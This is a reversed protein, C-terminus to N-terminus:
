EHRLATLVPTRLTRRMAPLGTLLGALLLIAMLVAIEVAPLGGGMALHPSVSILAALVGALLGVVLLAANERFVLGALRSKSWGTARLLALEARREWVNRLMVVGLGVVGLLLGLAGLVQFLSLYANQVALFGAVVEATPKVEAGYASLGATLLERTGLPDDPPAEILVMGAGEQHPFLGRFDREAIVLESQFISDKFTGVVRGTREVGSEDAVPLTGGLSVDLQWMATNEEVFVPIPEDAGREKVLLLWPNEKEEPTSALTGSFRFGGRYILSAPVGLVRPRTAKYLNLCSADDGARLRLPFYKNAGLKDALRARDAETATLGLKQRRAEWGDLIEARGQASTLDLHVPLDTTAVLQFGGSGGTRGRFEDDPSRRFSEVAILLFAASALLGATLLSRGPNRSANRVALRSLAWPGPRIAGRRDRRLYLWLGLMALSLLVIGSTFFAGARPEGPPLYPGAALLGAALATGGAFAWGPWSPTKRGVVRVGEQGGKLLAVASQKRLGRVAMFVIGVCLVVSVSLGVLLSLPSVHLSLFSSAAPDPWLRKLLSLMADAYAVAAGIGVLAAPVAIALGEALLMTRVRSVSWGTALLLGLERSRQALRLKQLLGVLMLSSAILFFSFGYFLAGFDVSGGRSAKLREAVPDFAFGSKEPELRARVAARFAAEFAKPDTGAPVAVRVSTTRGFRSGFLREGTGRSVYAKPTAKHDKWFDDDPRAIWSKEYPFPPSWESLSLRDTIGPFAPTLGRDDAAGALPIRGRVKLRVASSQLLVETEPRYFGLNVSVGPTADFAKGPLDVLLIENDLLREPFFPGLPAPLDTDLAAVIFYPVEGLRAASGVAAAVEVAPPAAFAGPTMRNILYVTTPASRVNLDKAARLVADELAFELLLRSSEVSLYRNEGRGLTQTKLGWDEIRLGADLAAQLSDREGGYALVADVAESSEGKNRLEAQLDGLQMWLNLPEGTSPTPAFRSGPQDANLVTAVELPVTRTTEDSGRRGFASARPIDSQKELNISITEGVSVGLAAALAASLTAEGPRLSVTPLLPSGQRVGYVSVRGVRIDGDATARTVSGRLVIAPETDAPLGETAKQSFFRPSVLLHKLGALQREGRDRLSGRQSDGVLLAGTVVATGAVIGLALALNSRAHFLLSRLVYRLPTMAHAM